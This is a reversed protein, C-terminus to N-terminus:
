LGSMAKTFRARPSRPQDKGSTSGVVPMIHEIRDSPSPHTRAFGPGNPQWHQNMENLMTVLSGPNYGVRGLITVSTADAAYEQSRAYGKTVLSHVIDQIGGAFQETLDKVKASGLNRGAEVGLTTLASTLRSKKIARLGDRNQVHGIEHALVAALDDETQCIDVLGKCVLILGGPAAFANIQDSDLLLFHYGGFTEPLDSAMALTQGLQNIYTNAAPDDLPPYTELITAAVARGIYYEQEPTIDAFSKEFAASTNNISTAQQETLMGAGQGIQTGIKTVTSCGIVYVLAMVLTGATLIKRSSM